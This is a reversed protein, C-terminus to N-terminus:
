KVRVSIDFDPRKVEFMANPEGFLKYDNLLDIQRTDADFYPQSIENPSYYAGGVKNYVRIEIVNLVGSINNIMEVLQGLYIDDGMSWKSIEFYSKTKNIAETVIQAQPYQKEIALDIEFGLNIIKANGIEIYDNIMRYDSLYTAINNQLTTTSQNSLKGNSDLGVTYIKIKNQEEFVSCRFPTGFEGPMLAIRTQYDSITVARNQSSFNYRVLNRLEEVSPEDKGGLAPIPNNVRISNRVSTNMAPSSGNIIIDSIGLQNLVNPGLNTSTGGGTRYKVFMTRNATPTVGLSSNNIFDGIKAVLTPDVGFESLSSIDQTGGGFILKMFGKDTYETIFKQVVRKYKGPKVGANDSIASNNPIFITDDALADMEYWRLDENLFQDLTPIGNYNTGDLMIVSSVSLVDQEPLVIEFFPRVDSPNLVRKYYKTIGNIVMERKTLKYSLINGNNDLNPEVLRNPVGGTTFPSSFDIDQTTEFVKGAGTVQSGQRILPAYTIDFSDGLTPVVCSFDVICASPRKGPVKLGYTRAMSLISSREQAFDIQTEQFMRDTHFSLMDGVAANLELLMMGVSADNFDGFIDPYYQKVFNILESRVDAFNRANYSIGQNAM